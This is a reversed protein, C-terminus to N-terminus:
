KKELGIKILELYIEELTKRIGNDEYDLQMRKVKRHLEDPINRLTIAAMKVDKTDFIINM